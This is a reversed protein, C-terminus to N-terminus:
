QSFLLRDRLARASLYVVLVVATHIVTQMLLSFFLSGWSPIAYQVEEISRMLLSISHVTGQYVVVATGTYAFLTHAAIGKIVTDRILQVSITAAVLAILHTGFPLVSFFDLYLGAIIVLMGTLVTRHSIALITAVLVVPHILQMLLAYQTLITTQIVCLWLIAMMWLIAATYKRM